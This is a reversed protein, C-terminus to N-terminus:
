REVRDIVALHGDRFELRAVVHESRSDRNLWVDSYRTVRRGDKAHVTVPVTVRDTATHHQVTVYEWVEAQGTETTRQIVRRPAGWALRTMAPTFGIALEGSVVAAQVNTSFSEFLPREAEIRRARMQTGSLCGHCLAM